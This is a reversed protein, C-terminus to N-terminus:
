REEGYALEVLKLCLHTFDMGAAKAAKPLLSTSTFGPITNVELVRPGEKLGLMVDIRSFHRCGLARFAALGLKQIALTTAQDLPAPVAYHTAASQYKASFDFFPNQPRIEVIPLAESELIGVTLERGGIFREMLVENGYRFAENLAVNLNEKEKVIAVGISSGECAPKIVVPFDLGNLSFSGADATLVKFEPVPIGKKRFITQATVKNLARRSAEADSGTYPIQLKELIAQITGDEGLRGHLAIFAVDLNAQRIQDAIAEEEKQTIDLSKVRRGAATLAESIARGSSLSIERESSYGGMLVGITGWKEFERNM